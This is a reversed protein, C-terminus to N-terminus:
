FPFFTPFTCKKLVKKKNKKTTELFRYVKTKSKITIDGGSITFVTLTVHLAAGMDTSPAM